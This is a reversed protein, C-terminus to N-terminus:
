PFVIISQFNKRTSEELFLNAGHKLQAENDDGREGSGHLFVLLPYKKGCDYDIPLLIRYPMRNGNNDLFERKQFARLSEQAEIKNIGCIFLPFLLFIMNKM